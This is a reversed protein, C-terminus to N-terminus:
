ENALVRVMQAFRERLKKSSIHRFDRVLEGTMREVGTSSNGDSEEQGLGDYFYDVPVDLMHAIDHLRSAPIRDIGREYKQVQNLVVGIADALQQMTLGLWILRGRIREGVHLDIARTSRGRKPKAM